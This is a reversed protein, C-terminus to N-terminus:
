KSKLMYSDYKADGVCEVTGEGGPTEPQLERAMFTSDVAYYVDYRHGKNVVAEVLAVCLYVTQPHGTSCAMSSSSQYSSILSDYKTKLDGWFNKVDTPTPVYHYMRESATLATNSSSLAYNLDRTGNGLLKKAENPGGGCWGIQEQLAYSYESSVHAYQGDIEYIIVKGQQPPPFRSAFVDTCGYEPITGTYQSGFDGGCSDYYTKGSCDKFSYSM